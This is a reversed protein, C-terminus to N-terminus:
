SIPPKLDTSSEASSFPQGASPLQAHPPFNGVAAASRTFSALALCLECNDCDNCHGAATVPDTATGAHMPCDEPMVSLEKVDAQAQVTQQSAMDVAMANGMWGRLPLLTIMLALLLYRMSSHYPAFGFLETKLTLRLLDEIPKM